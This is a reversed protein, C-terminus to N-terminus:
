NETSITQVASESLADEIARWVLAACKVRAPFKKVGELVALKGLVARDYETVTDSLLLNLFQDKLALADAVSKGEIALTMLSGSSKSIACGSGVFASKEIIGDPSVQLTVEYDDGCLPNVGHSYHSHPDLKGFNRPSKNHDLILQQYLGDLRSM